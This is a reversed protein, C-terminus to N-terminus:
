PCGDGEREEGARGSEGGASADIWFKPRSGLGGRLEPLRM